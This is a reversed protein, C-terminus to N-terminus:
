LGYLEPKPNDRIESSHLEINLVELGLLSFCDILREPCFMAEVSM